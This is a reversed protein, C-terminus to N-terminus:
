WKSDLTPAFRFNHYLARRGYSPSPMFAHVRMLM